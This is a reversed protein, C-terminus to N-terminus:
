CSPAAGAAAILHATAAKATHWVGTLNVDIMDQWTSASNAAYPGSSRPDRRQRQRHRAARAARRGDDLAAKVAASDRVDAQAAVIRRDLTEVEKVTEALDQETSQAYDM